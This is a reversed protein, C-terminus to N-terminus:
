IHQLHKNVWAMASPSHSDHRIDRYGLKSALLDVLNHIDGRYSIYGNKSLRLDLYAAVYCTIDKIYTRNNVQDIRPILLQYHRSLSNAQTGRVCQWYIDTDQTLGTAAIFQEKNLKRQM